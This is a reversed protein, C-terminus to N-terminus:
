GEHCRWSLTTTGWHSYLPYPHPCYYHLSRSRCRVQESGTNTHTHYCPKNTHTLTHTFTHLHIHNSKLQQIVEASDVVVNVASESARLAAEYAQEDATM